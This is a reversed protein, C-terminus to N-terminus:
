KGVKEDDKDPASNKMKAAQDNWKGKEGDSLSKWADGIEKMLVKEGKKKDRYDKGFLMYGTPAPPARKGKGEKSESKGRSGKEKSKGGVNKTAKKGKEM